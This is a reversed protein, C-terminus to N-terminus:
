HHALVLCRLRNGALRRKQDAGEGQRLRAGVRCVRMEAGQAERAMESAATRVAARLLRVREQALHSRCTFASRRLHAGGPQRAQRRGLPRPGRRDSRQPHSPAASPREAHRGVAARRHRRRQHRRREALAAPAHLVAGPPLRAAHNRTSRSFAAGYRVTAHRLSAALARRHPAAVSAGRRPSRPLRPVWFQAAAAGARHMASRRGRARACLGGAVARRAEAWASPCPPPRAESARVREPM